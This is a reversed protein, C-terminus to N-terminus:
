RAKGLYEALTGQKVLADLSTIFAANMLQTEGDRQFKDLSAQGPVTSSYVIKQAARDFVQWDISVSLSGKVGNVSSCVDEQVPHIVAGILYDGKDEDKEAAFLDSSKSLAIYGTTKIRDSFLRDFREYDLTQKRKKVQFKASLLCITGVKVKGTVDSTETDLIVKSLQVSKSATNLALAPSGTMVCLTASALVIGFIKM